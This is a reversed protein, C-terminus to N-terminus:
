VTKLLGAENKLRQYRRDVEQQLSEVVEQYTDACLHKTRGMMALWEAVPIKKGAADPEYSLCTKGQEIEYLPFYCCNVGAEIVKRETSPNDNWNLPCASLAKLYATGETKAYYAAKAAKKIFDTPNSEAATAIYPIGTAAMIRPMDKHFFTKGYQKAGVHSTSSRAGKPTSYSLQYGTNMYGGNDYEFILLRHGRLATGLASGMGIDMGGDGSVMIFILDGQPLEGKKQKRYCIEALGSLTAAGNQFLNHLYPVKFSTRPYPTTVIMGCGTQFLFVVPDEIARSLLNLNVPIGCGPCAGHGPALRKPMAATANLSGGKVQVERATDRQLQTAGINTREATMPAFFPGKDMTEQVTGPTVGYYDFDPAKTDTVMDLLKEVDEAFFDKGGLGYVRSKLKARGGFKQMMARVELSLNGGGAGYSDQRDAVMMSAAPACADYLAKEPFPRLVNLTVIGAKRGNKRLSDVGEKATEYSSGLLVLLEQAEECQYGEVKCYERGSLAGYEAFLKPLVEDAQQMALHLQYRNNMLDPENMYSGVTIPNSLDLFPYPDKKSGIFQRVTEDKEFRLCRRKQHSTFCGDYAVVVPLRVQEALRLAIINFDYVQQVTHAFLIPWGANLLYMIDSHDGKISLPGSVTRCAVNMVMPYRTGSQVPFQELAYLLGNASTANIVRGGGVAAGYCIGAASHEGEAAIMILDTEGKARMDDLNEAIQTSPTIPYYGMLDYGIQKIAIAAIENGGAYETVQKEM